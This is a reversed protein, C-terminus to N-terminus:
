RDPMSNMLQSHTKDGMCLLNILEERILEEESQGSHWTGHWTGYGNMRRNM